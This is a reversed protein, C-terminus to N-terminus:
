VFLSELTNQKETSWNIADMVIKLPELFTKDFQTNYDLYGDLDFEKPLINPFSIVTCQLPNPEKVYMFKIKDGDNIREYKKTIDKETLVHNYILSGKVHIPTGKSFIARDDSYKKLDNVSRPFAVEEAPLTKFEQRFKDIFKILKAESGDVMIKFADKIRERCVMPTSSKIAELGMIKLQPTEYRVGENDYVNILYRKKATWIAKDALAERKMIMKQSYANVYEALEQYSKDIYPQINEDCFKDMMTIIKKKDTVNGVAKEILPGLNLYISDTDSAIVYDEKSKLIKNLHDNLKKEIWKIALQGSLTIAEAIRM